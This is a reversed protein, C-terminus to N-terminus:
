LPLRPIPPSAPRLPFVQALMACMLFFAMGHFFLFLIAFQEFANNLQLFLLIRTSLGSVFDLIRDSHFDLFTNDM